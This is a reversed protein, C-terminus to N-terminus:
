AEEAKKTETQAAALNFLEANHGEARAHCVWAYLADYVIMGHSLMEIDDLYLKSLGLSVALLGPAQAALGLQDTDAGRVIAALANLEASSLGFDEILADFSCREAHQGRHTFRVGPVDYATAGRKSAESLVDKSPVYEFQALPDIFRRILWPCAIRDIKPRERTIWRSPQNERSPIQLDSDSLKRVCPGRMATWAEIGGELTRASVGRNILAACVNQSIEFGHVCYVVVERHRPLYKQWQEVQFPDRWTAGAILKEAKDFAPRARVDIVLPHRACGLTQALASASISQILSDFNTDITTDSTTDMSDDM